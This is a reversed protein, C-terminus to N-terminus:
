MSGKCYCAVVVVFAKIAVVVVAFITKNAKTTMYIITVVIKEDGGFQLGNCCYQNGEIFLYNFIVVQEM